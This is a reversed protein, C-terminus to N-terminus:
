VKIQRVQIRFDNGCKPCSLLHICIDDENIKDDEYPSYPGVFNTIKGKDEMIVHCHSCEYKEINKLGNCLPCVKEM